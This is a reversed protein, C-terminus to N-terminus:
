LRSRHEHLHAKNDSELAKYILIQTKTAKQDVIFKVGFLLTVVLFQVFYHPYKFSLGFSVVAGVLWAANKLKQAALPGKFPTIAKGCHPCSSAGKSVPKVLGKARAVLARPVEGQASASEAETLLRAKEILARDEPSVRLHELMRDLEAGKLKNNLFQVLEGTDPYAGPRRGGGLLARERELYAKLKLDLTEM